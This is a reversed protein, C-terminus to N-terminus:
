FRAADRREPGPRDGEPAEHGDAPGSEPVATEAAFDDLYKTLGKRVEALDVTSPRSSRRTRSRWGRRGAPCRGSWRTTSGSGNGGVYKVTEEVLLLRLKLRTAPEQCATWRSRSRRGQRGAPKAKGAIKVDTTKELLPDIIGTYQKFKSEANPWAAAAAPRRSATSCPADAHRPHGHPFKERYYDWRAITDPNTMPDPGPIHMHYQILVLDTPKYAKVLADFAVDAAVCPPCQAGTFLEMM